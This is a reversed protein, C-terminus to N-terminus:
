PAPGARTESARGRSRLVPRDEIWELAFRGPDRDYARHHSRCGLAANDLSLGGGDRYADVLHMVDCWDAKHDCGEVICGGDRIVLARWLGAPVTRSEGTVALPKGHAETVVFSWGADDMLHRIAGLPVSEGDIDVMGARNLLVDIPVTVVIHPRVGHSRQPRVPSRSSTWETRSAQPEDADDRTDTALGELSARAMDTVADATRQEPTRYENPGDPRRYTDIARDIVSGDVTAWEGFIRKMGDPTDTVSAKRAAHRRAEAEAADEPDLEGRIREITRGFTVPDETRAAETLEPEVKARDEPSLRELFRSLKIANASPIAGDDAAGALTPSQNLAKGLRDNDKAEGKSWGNKEAIENRRRRRAREASRIPDKPNAAAARKGDRDALANTARAMRAKLRRVTREVTEVEAEIAPETMEDLSRGLLGDVGAVFADVVPDVGYPAAAESAVLM